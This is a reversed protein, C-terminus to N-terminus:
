KGPMRPATMLDLGGESLHHDLLDILGNEKLKSFLKGREEQWIQELYRPNSERAQKYRELRELFRRADQRAMVKQSHSYARANQNLRYSESKALRDRSSAEQEARFRLTAIQAQTRSVGDFADKVEAPPSIKSVRADLIEIGLRFPEILQSVQSILEGRLTNKGRLLVEDVDRAAVWDAMTAEVVRELVSYVRDESLVFDVIEGPKVKYNVVVQVNVLNHDGTLLQGSPMGSEFSDAEFLHGVILTRVSDVEVRDVRDMGWPLGVWLGPEPQDKLVKGFRRVVAREGRRVEVFGTLGYLGLLFLLMGILWRM